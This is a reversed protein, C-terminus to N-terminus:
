GRPFFSQNASFTPVVLVTRMASLTVGDNCWSMLLIDQLGIEKWTAFGLATIRFGVSMMEQFSVKHSQPCCPETRDLQLRLTSSNPIGNQLDFILSTIGGHLLMYTDPFIQAREYHLVVDGPMIDWLWGATDGVTVDIGIHIVNKLFGLLRRAKVLDAVPPDQLPRYGEM